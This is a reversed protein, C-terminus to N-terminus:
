AALGLIQKLFTKAKERGEVTLMVGDSLVKVGESKKVDRSYATTAANLEKLNKYILGLEVKAIGRGITNGYSSLLTIKKLLDTPGDNPISSDVVEVAGNKIAFVETTRELPISAENAIRQLIKEAEHGAADGEASVGKDLMGANRTEPLNRILFRFAEERVQEDLERVFQDINLIIEKYNAVVDM